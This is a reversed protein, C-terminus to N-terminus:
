DTGARDHPRQRRSGSRPAHGDRWPRDCRRTVPADQNSLLHSRCNPSLCLWLYAGRLTKGLLIRDSIRPRQYELPLTDEHYPLLAVFDYWLALHCTSPLAPVPPAGQVSRTCINEDHDLRGYGM